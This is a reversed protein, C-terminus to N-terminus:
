ERLTPHCAFFTPNVLYDLKPRTKEHEYVYTDCVAESIKDSMEQIYSVLGCMCLTIVSNVYFLEFWM